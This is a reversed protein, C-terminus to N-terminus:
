WLHFRTITESLFVNILILLFAATNWFVLPRGYVNKGLRQYLYSIYVALIIFSTIVKPDLWSFNPLASSARIIGLVLSVFLLPVGILNCYFSGKELNSLSGFRIMRKNWKKQKLWSYEVMYMVSLVFSFTFAAYAILAITIHIILLDSMLHSSVLRPVRHDPKFFSVGMLVFSLINAFSLILDLKYFRDLILTATVLLWALFFLGDTLTVIPFEGLEKYKLYFIVVQLIWVISLLWFATQHVRRNTQVYDIFFCSVCVAYFSITTDYLINLVM